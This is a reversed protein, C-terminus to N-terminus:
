ASAQIMQKENDSLDALKKRKEYQKTKNGTFLYWSLESKTKRIIKYIKDTRVEPNDSDGIGADKKLNDLLERSKTISMTRSVSATTDQVGPYSGSTMKNGAFVINQDMDPSPPMFSVDIKPRRRNVVPQQLCPGSGPTCRNRNSAFITSRCIPSFDGERLTNKTYKKVVKHPTCNEPLEFGESAVVIKAGCFSLM